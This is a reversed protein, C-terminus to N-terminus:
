VILAPNVVTTITSSASDYDNDGVLTSIINISTHSTKFVYNLVALGVSTSEDITILVKESHLVKSGEVFTINVYQPKSSSALGTITTTITNEIGVLTDTPIMATTLNCVGKAIAVSMNMESPRNDTDGLYNVTLLRTGAKVYVHDFTAIGGMIEVTFPDYNDFQLLVTGNNIKAGMYDFVEVAITGLVGVKLGGIPLTTEITTRRTSNQDIFTSAMASVQNYNIDGPLTVYMTLNDHAKKWTYTTQFDDAPASLTHQLKGNNYFQIIVYKGVLSINTPIFWQIVATEGVIYGYLSTFNATMDHTGKSIVASWQGTAGMLEDTEDFGFTFVQKVSAYTVLVTAVGDIFSLNFYNGNGDNLWGSGNVLATTGTSNYLKVTFNGPVGVKPTTDPTGKLTTGVKLTLTLFMDFSDWTTSENNFRVLITNNGLTMKSTDLQASFAGNVKNYKANIPLSWAGGSKNYYIEVNGQPTGNGTTDTITGSLKVNTGLAATLSDEGDDWTVVGKENAGNGTAASVAGFSTLVILSAIFLFVLALKKNLFSTM